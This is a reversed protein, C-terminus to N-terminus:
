SELFDLPRDGFLVLDEDLDVGRRDGPRVARSTFGVPTATQEDREDAAEDRADAPRLLADEARLQCSIDFCNACVDILERDTVVDEACTPEPEPCVRLEGAHPLTGQQCVLRGAHAELLSRRNAVSCEICQPAQSQRIEPVPLPDEDVACRSGDASCPHLQGPVEIGVDSRHAAGLVELKHSRESGVPHDIVRLFVEGLVALRVVDDEVCDAFM